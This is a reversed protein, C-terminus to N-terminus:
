MLVGENMTGESKYSSCVKCKYEKSKNSKNDKMRSRDFTYATYYIQLENVGLSDWPINNTCNQCSSISIVPGHWLLNYVSQVLHLSVNLRRICQM